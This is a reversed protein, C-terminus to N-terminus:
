GYVRMVARACDAVATVATVATADADTYAVRPPHTRYAQPDVLPTHTHTHKHTHTHAKKQIKNTKYAVLSPTFLYLM